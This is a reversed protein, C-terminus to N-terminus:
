NFVPEDSDGLFADLKSDSLNGTTIDDANPHPDGTTTNDANPPPTGTSDDFTVEPEPGEHVYEKPQETKKEYPIDTKPLDISTDLYDKIAENVMENISKGIMAKRDILGEVNEIDIRYTKTLKIKM